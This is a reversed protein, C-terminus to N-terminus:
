NQRLALARFCKEIRCLERAVHIMYPRDDGKMATCKRVLDLYDKLQQQIEIGLEELITPDVIDPVNSDKIYHDVLNTPLNKFNIKEELIAYNLRDMANSDMIDYVKKGTLLQFLLIGFSYVDTKQTIIGQQHYEPAVYGITGCVGDQVELEGPPLSISSSFDVIKAVGSNEDIIVNHPKIDRHIIPTTFETHLFVIASAVDRAVRLRNEWLLLKRNINGKKFLLDSLSIGEVYAYVMVPEEFELCCGILKLVNKLHSMQATIAIDRHINNFQCRSFRVLVPRNDVLGTVMYMDPLEMKSKSNRIANEIENATYYRIPIRCNGDCLALLEELVSSGNKLYCDKEKKRREASASSFLKKRALGRFFPMEIELCKIQGLALARFCKEIRCLERAVHIMYPRDDGKLVTCKKVLDSFDKLQQQIEIGHEELIIPDALDMINGKKTYGDVFKFYVTEKSDVRDLTNGEETNSKADDEFDIREKSNTSDARDMFIDPEAKGTLLQFLLVGFSYVDIKQTIIGSIAHEPAMYRYTGYMWDEQVELEGPPLSISFSFDVIKAIGSKQDIIVNHPKLDKHIIPTTFETHLFVIASAVENAIRLRNGWSLSSKTNLNGALRLVNKLHSMQATIAIDRHINKIEWTNFRVLVPRNDLSGTVMSEDALEMITTKSHRIENQIEIATVYRIPIRCNGDCLALLEELVASGNKLYCDHEKKRREASASAFPKKRTFFPM